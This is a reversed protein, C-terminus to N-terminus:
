QSASSFPEFTIEITPAANTFGSPPETNDQLRASWMLAVSLGRSRATPYNVLLCM